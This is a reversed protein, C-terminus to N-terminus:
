SLVEYDVDRAIRGRNGNLKDFKGGRMGGRDRRAVKVAFTLALADGDDPSRGIIDKIEEKSRLMQQDKAKGFFYYEHATLDTFLNNDDDICGGRLWDRVRAYMETRKNAYQPDDATSGFWIEHVNKYGMEKLRDIVGSGQGADICVADPNYTDLLHAVRNAIVMNDMGKFRVPEISRANRGYRFRCVTHDDGFRAVDVGLVLAAGVDDTAPLPRRQAQHVLDNGIFQNAGQKPFQGLVEIRVTDSDIGYQKIMSDFRKQDIGEVTRSDVHTTRWFASNTHFSDYFGGVNRRGNSFQFWYRDLTLDTFFGESVDYIAKPIGSAEDFLLMFGYMNHAGAFADPNDESWLLGKCYYYTSDIQLQKALADKFWDDPEITLVSRKFWHANILMTGWKNGEAFTKTKLQPETNATIVTSSGVRTSMMWDKLWSVLASKGPGRGSVTADRFMEPDFGIHSNMKQNRIHDTMAQLKDRQWTRPGKVNHLPTNEKGWPYAFLVFKELDDAIQPDWIESMLTQEDKASYLQPM